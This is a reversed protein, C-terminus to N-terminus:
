VVAWVWVCGCVRAHKGESACVRACWLLPLLLLLPMKSQDIMNLLSFVFFASLFFSLFFSPALTQQLMWRVLFAFFFGEMFVLYNLLTFKAYKYVTFCVCVDFHNDLARENNCLKDNQFEEWRKDMHHLFFSGYGENQEHHHKKGLKPAHGVMLEPEAPAAALTM